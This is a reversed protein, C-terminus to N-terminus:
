DLVMLTGTLSTGLAATLSVRQVEGGSLTRSPRDLSLYGLGVRELYGLRTQIERTVRDTAEDM